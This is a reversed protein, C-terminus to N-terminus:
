ENTMATFRSIQGMPIGGQLMTKAVEAVRESGDGDMFIYFLRDSETM